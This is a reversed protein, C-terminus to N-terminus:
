AAELLLWVIPDIVEGLGAIAPVSQLVHGTSTVRQVRRAPATQINRVPIRDFGHHAVSEQVPAAVGGSGQGAVSAAATYAGGIYGLHSTPIGLARSFDPGLPMVMMFDLINVFQVAGVLFVIARESVKHM